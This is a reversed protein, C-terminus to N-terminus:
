QHVNMSLQDELRESNWMFINIELWLCCWQADMHRLLENNCIDRIDRHPNKASM